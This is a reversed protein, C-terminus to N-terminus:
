QSRIIPLLIYQSYLCTLLSTDALEHSSVWWFFVELGVFLVVFDGPHHESHCFDRFDPSLALFGLYLLVHALFVYLSPVDDILAIPPWAICHWALAPLTAMSHATKPDKQHLVLLFIRASIRRTKPGLQAFFHCLWRETATGIVVLNCNPHM